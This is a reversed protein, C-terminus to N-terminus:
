SKERAKMKAIATQMEQLHVSAAGTDTIHAIRGDLGILFSVRRDFKSGPARRVGYTDAITGDSDVILPFNLRYKERFQRHSDASDFSVGIVAVNDKQLDSMRDRWGCAEITCGPTDDKPYFYLLVLQKGVVDALKITKGDQDQGQVLPAKDGVQPTKHEEASAVRSELAFLLAAWFVAPLYRMHM